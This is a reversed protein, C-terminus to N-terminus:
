PSQKRRVMALVLAIVSLLLAAWAAYFSYTEFAEDDDEIEVETPITTDVVEAAPALIMTASAPTESDPAGTWHVLEGGAYEQTTPWNLLSATEPNVAVFPFEVFRDVALSGSWVAAIPLGASDKHLTLKWGPVDAFSVVRLGPPFTLEVSITPVVKENPVRLVYKGWIGVKSEGPFVIAHSFVEAALISLFVLIAFLRIQKM